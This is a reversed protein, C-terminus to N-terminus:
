KLKPSVIEIIASNLDSWKTLGNTLDVEKTYEGTNRDKVFFKVEVQGDKLKTGSVLYNDGATQIIGHVSQGIPKADLDESLKGTTRAGSEGSVITKKAKAELTRNYLSASYKDTGQSQEYMYKANRNTEDILEDFFDTNREDIIVTKTENAPLGLFNTKIETVTVYTKGDPTSGTEFGPLFQGTEFDVNEGNMGKFDYNSSRLFNFVKSQLAKGKPTGGDFAIGYYEGQNPNSSLDKSVNYNYDNEVATGKVLADLEQANIKSINSVLTNTKALKSVADRYEQETPRNPNIKTKPQGKVSGPVQLTAPLNNYNNIINNLDNRIKDINNVILKKNKDFNDTIVKDYNKKYSTRFSIKSNMEMELKSLEEADNPDNPDLGAIKGRLIAIEYESKEYKNKALLREKQLEAETKTTTINTTVIPQNLALAKREDDNWKWALNASKDHTVTSSVRSMAINELNKYRQDRTYNAISQKVEIINGKEDKTKVTVTGDGGNLKDVYESQMIETQIDQQLEPDSNFSGILTNRIKDPLIGESKYKEIYQGSTDIWEKIVESGIGTMTKNVFATPDFADQVGMITPVYTEGGESKMKDIEMQYQIDRYDGPNVKQDRRYKSVENIYATRKDFVSNLNDLALKEKQLEAYEAYSNSNLETGVLKKSLNAIKTNIANAKESSIKYDPLEITRGWHDTTYQAGTPTAALKAADTRFDDRKKQKTDMSKQIMDWPLETPVFQSEYKFIQPNDYRSIM